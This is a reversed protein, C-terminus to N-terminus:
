ENVNDPIIDAYPTQRLDPLATVIFLVEFCLSMVILGAAFPCTVTDFLVKPLNACLFRVISKVASPVVFLDPVTILEAADRTIMEPNDNILGAYRVPVTTFLPVDSESTVISEASKEPKVFAVDQSSKFPVADPRKTKLFQLVAPVQVGTEDPVGYAEHSAVKIFQPGDSSLVYKNLLFYSPSIIEDELM